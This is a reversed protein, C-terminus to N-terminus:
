VLQLLVIVADLHIGVAHRKRLQAHVNWTYSSSAKLKRKSKRQRLDDSSQDSASPWIGEVQLQSNSMISIWDQCFIPSYFAKPTPIPNDCPIWAQTPPVLMCRKRSFSNALRTLSSDRSRLVLTLKQLAALDLNSSDSFSTRLLNSTTWRTQRTWKQASWIITFCLLCLCCFKTSWIRCAM